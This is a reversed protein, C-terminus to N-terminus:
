KKGGALFLHHMSDVYFYEKTREIDHMSNQRIPAAINKM